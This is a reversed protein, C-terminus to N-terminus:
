RATNNEREVKKYFNVVNDLTHTLNPGASSLLHHPDVSPSFQISQRGKGLSGDTFYRNSINVAPFEQYFDPTWDELVDPRIQKSFLRNISSLSELATAFKSTGLGTVSVQQRLHKL